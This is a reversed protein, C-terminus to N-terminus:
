IQTSKRTGINNHGNIKYSQVHAAFSNDNALYQRAEQPTLQVLIYQIDQKDIDYTSHELKNYYDGDDSYDRQSSLQSLQDKSSRWVWQQVRRPLLWTQYQLFTLKEHTYSDILKMLIYYIQQEIDSIDLQQQKCIQQVYSIYDQRDKVQSISMMNSLIIKYVSPSIYGFDIGTLIQKMQRIHHNLIDCIHNFQDERQQSTDPARYIHVYYNINEM